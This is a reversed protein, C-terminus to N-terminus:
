KKHVILVLDMEVSGDQYYIYHPLLNQGYPVYQGFSMRATGFKKRYTLSRPYDQGPLYVYHVAPDTGYTVTRQGDKERCYQYNQPPFIFLTLFSEAKERVAPVDAQPTIFIFKVGSPKVQAQLLKYGGAAAYFVAEYQEKGTKKIQLLGDLSNGGAHLTTKFASLVEGQAFFSVRPLKEGECFSKISLSACGGLLFLATFIFCIKRM